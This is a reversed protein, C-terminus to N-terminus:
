VTKHEITSSPSQEHQHPQASDIKVPSPLNFVPVWTGDLKVYCTDLCRMPHRWIGAAKEHAAAFANISDYAVNQHEIKNDKYIGTWVDSMIPVGDYTCRLPHVIEQGNIFAIDINGFRRSM